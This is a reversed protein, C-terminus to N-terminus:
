KRVLCVPEGPFQAVIPLQSDDDSLELQISAVDAGVEDAVDIVILVPCVIVTAAEAVEAVELFIVTSEPPKKVTLAENEIEPVLVTLPVHFWDVVVAM